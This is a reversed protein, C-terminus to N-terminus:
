FLESKQRAKPTPIKRRLSEYIIRKSGVGERDMNGLQRGLEGPPPQLELGTAFRGRSSWSRVEGNGLAAVQLRLTRSVEGSSDSGRDDGCREGGGGREDGVAEKM